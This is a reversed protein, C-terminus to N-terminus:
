IRRLRNAVDVNVEIDTNNITIGDVGDIKEPMCQLYTLFTKLIPWSLKDVRFFLIKSAAMVGFINCLIIIHNLVLREKMEGTTEYRNLLRKIYKVRKVDAYFEETNLCQPNDYTKMLYLDFNKENLDDFM